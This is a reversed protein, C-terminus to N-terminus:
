KTRPDNIRAIFHIQGLQDQVLMIYPRDVIMAIPQPKPKPMPASTVGYTVATAAAAETKKEDVDM